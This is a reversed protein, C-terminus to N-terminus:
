EKNVKVKFGLIGRLTKDSAGIYYGLFCSFLGPLLSLALVLPQLFPLTDSNVYAVLGSYMAHIIFNLVSPCVLYGGSFDLAFFLLALAAFLITPLYAFFGLKLGTLKNPPCDGNINKTVDRAGRQFFVDYELFCFFGGAFLAALLLVFDNEGNTGGMAMCPWTIMVGFVSITFQNIWFKRMEKLNQTYLSLFKKM